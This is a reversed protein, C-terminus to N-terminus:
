IKVWEGNEQKEFSGWEPKGINRGKVRVPNIWDDQCGDIPDSIEIWDDMRIGYDIEAQEYASEIDSLCCDFCCPGDEEKDYGFLFTGESNTEYIMLRKIGDKSKNLKAIKRM